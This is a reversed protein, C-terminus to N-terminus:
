LELSASLAGIIYNEPPYHKSLACGEGDSHGEMVLGDGLVLRWCGLGGIVAGRAGLQWGELRAAVPLVLPIDSSRESGRKFRLFLPRLGCLVQM